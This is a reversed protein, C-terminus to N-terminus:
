LAQATAPAASLAFDADTLSIVDKQKEANLADTASLAIAEPSSM